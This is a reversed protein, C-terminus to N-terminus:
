FCRRQWYRHCRGTGVDNNARQRTTTAIFAVTGISHHLSDGCGGVSYSSPIRIENNDKESFSLLWSSLPLLLLLPVDHFFGVIVSRVRRLCVCPHWVSTFFCVHAELWLFFSTEEVHPRCFPDKNFLGFGIFIGLSVVRRRM